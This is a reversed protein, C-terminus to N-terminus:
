AAIRGARLPLGWARLQALVDEVSKCVAVQMGAARLQEHREAQGMIERLAGSRTRVTRTRSLRGNSAKLEIGFIRGDHVYLLDPWGTALGMRSLKQAFQPPLPINGAPFCTWTAPKLLFLDMSRAASEHLLQESTMPATLAFRRPRASM